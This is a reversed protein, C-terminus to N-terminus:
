LLLTTEAILRTVVYPDLNSAPRRDEYYGCKEVPVMRGVRISCGRNAVGWSFDGMSSTEHKGTLRRENGEGYAAIHVAHRKELKKCQEQIADWGCGETRTAKTSYNTHGGSGNWDGPIPKPDFSVDVNFLECVRYMIFRSMWLHDGMSIGECPGVQYEWQSPLVEANVGSINVGAYLCARYHVEAVDRAIAVGAGASCYYPGQAAPFGGRPWGLPWKTSANLLTYEQEIGFWPEEAKVKEMVDACAARSNTPIAKMETLTGDKNLRPPEYTDCLAIINDGGRFPDKFLARPVIYVESDTGPAQGTSSGDYNWHPLDEPKTPVASVTRAKSRLDAGTGGIWVYEVCVKGGQDKLNTLYHRTISQDLLSGIKEETAFVFNSQGAAM